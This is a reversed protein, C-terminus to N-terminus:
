LFHITVIRMLSPTIRHLLNYESSQEHKADSYCGLWRKGMMRKGSLVIRGLGDCQMAFEGFQGPNIRV